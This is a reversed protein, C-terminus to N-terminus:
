GHRQLQERVFREYATAAELLRDPAGKLSLEINVRGIRMAILRDQLNYAEDGLALRTSLTRAEAEFRTAFDAAAVADTAFVNVRAKVILPHPEARLWLKYNASSRIGMERLTLIMGPAGPDEPNRDVVSASVDVRELAPYAAADIKLDEVTIKASPAVAPASTGCAALWAALALASMPLVPFNM